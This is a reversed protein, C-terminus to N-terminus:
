MRDLSELYELVERAEKGGAQAHALLLIGHPGKVNIAGPFTKLTAQVIELKGLMAAAFLDLRAGSDLLCLAIDRRGMHAACGLATEFDGGSWDWTANVLAPEQKLLERVRNLDAHAKVVFEQVLEPKLAPPKNAAM